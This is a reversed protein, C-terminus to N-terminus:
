LKAYVEELTLGKEAMMCAVYYLVQSLELSLEERGEFRAAMWSEAAEEVLKKGIGDAGKKFLEATSLTPSPMPYCAPGIILRAQLATAPDATAVSNATGGLPAPCKFETANPDNTIKFTIYVQSLRSFARVSTLTFSTGLPVSQQMQYIGVTPFSLIRGSTLLQYFSAQAAEDCTVADYIIQVNQLSFTTSNTNGGAGYDLWNATNTICNIELDLPLYTAPTIKGSSFVSLPLPFMVTLSGNAAITSMANQFPSGATAGVNTGSYGAETGLWGWQTAM